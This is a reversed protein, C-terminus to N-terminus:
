NINKYEDLKYWGINILLISVIFKMVYFLPFNAIVLPNVEWEIHNLTFYLDIM